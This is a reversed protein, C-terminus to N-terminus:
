YGACLGQKLLRYSNEAPVLYVRCVQVGDGALGYIEAKGNQDLDYVQIVKVPVALETKVYTEGSSQFLCSGLKVDDIEHEGSPQKWYAVFYSPAAGPKMVAPVVELDEVSLDGGVDALCLDKFKKQLPDDEALAPKLSVGSEPLKRSGRLAVGNDTFLTPDPSDTEMKLDATVLITSPSNGVYSFSVIVAPYVVGQASVVTLKDGVKFGSKDMVRALQKPEKILNRKKFGALPEKTEVTNVFGYDYKIAAYDLDLSMGIADKVPPDLFSFPETFYLDKATLPSPLTKAVPAKTGAPGSSTQARVAPEGTFLMAIMAFLMALRIMKM